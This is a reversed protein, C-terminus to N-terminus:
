AGQLSQNGSPVFVPHTARVGGYPNATPDDLYRAALQVLITEWEEAPLCHFPPVFPARYLSIRQM